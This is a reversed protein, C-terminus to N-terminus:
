RLRQGVLLGSLGIAESSESMEPGDPAIRNSHYVFVVDSAKRFIVVGLGQDTIVVVAPSVKVQGPEHIRLLGIGLGYRAGESARRRVDILVRQGPRSLDESPQIPSAACWDLVESWLGSGGEITTLARSTSLSPTCM